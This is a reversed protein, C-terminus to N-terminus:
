KGDKYIKYMNYFASITGLGLFILFFVSETKFLKDLSLGLFVGAILPAIIYYGIDQYNVLPLNRQKKEKVVPKKKIKLNFDKDFGYYVM